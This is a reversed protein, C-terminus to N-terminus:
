SQVLWDILGDISRDIDHCGKSEEKWQASSKPLPARGLTVLRPGNRAAHLSNAGATRSALTSSVTSLVCVCVCVCVIVSVYPIIPYYTHTYMNQYDPSRASSIRYTFILRAHKLIESENYM